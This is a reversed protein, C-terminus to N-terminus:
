SYNKFPSLYPSFSSISQYFIYFYFYAPICMSYIYYIEIMFSMLIRHM